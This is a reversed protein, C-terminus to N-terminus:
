HPRLEPPGASGERRVAALAAEPGDFLRFNRKLHLGVLEILRRIHGPPVVAAVWTGDPATRLLRILSSFGSSDIYTVEGFDIIVGGHPKLLLATGVGHFLYESHARDIEGRLRVYPIGGRDSLCFEM